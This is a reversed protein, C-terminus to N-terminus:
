IVLVRVHLRQINYGGALISRVEATGKDGTVFGNLAKMEYKIGSWGQITGVKDKIRRQLDLVLDESDQRNKAEIQEDTLDAFKYDAVTHDKMFLSYGLHYRKRKLEDRRSKDHDNWIEELGDKMIILIEPLQSVSSTKKIEEALAKEDKQITAMLKDLKKQSSRVDAEAFYLESESGGALAELKKINKQLSAEAKVVKSHNAEIKLKLREVKTM